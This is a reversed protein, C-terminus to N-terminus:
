ACCEGETLLAMDLTLILRLFEGETLLAMNITLILRLM